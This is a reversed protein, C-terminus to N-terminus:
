LSFDDDSVSPSFVFVANGMVDGQFFYRLVMKPVKNIGFDVAREVISIAEDIRYHNLTFVTEPHDLPKFCTGMVQIKAHLTRGYNAVMERSVLDCILEHEPFLKHFIAIAHCIEAEDLYIFVGEVVLVVPGDIPMSALKAELCDSSFDIPIRQLRNPCDAAPLRDEKWQVVQPEDLEFWTGGKLRYPRSDFGAGITIICTNPHPALRARLLDDIIRHRVLMSANSNEEEKFIDYIRVGYDCMFLQAYHDGCLPFKRAADEVRVGCCYFAMNTIPKM